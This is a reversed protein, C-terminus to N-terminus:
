EQNLKTLLSKWKYHADNYGNVYAVESAIDSTSWVPQQEKPAEALIKNILDKKMGEVMKKFEEKQTTLAQTLFPLYERVQIRDSEKEEESLKAYSASIQREWRNVLERPIVLNGTPIDEFQKTTANFSNVTHPFCKSHLYAQWKAWREHELNACKELLEDVIQQIKQM